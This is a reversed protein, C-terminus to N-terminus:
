FAGKHKSTKILNMERTKKPELTEKDFRPRFDNYLFGFNNNGSNDNFVNTDIYDTNISIKLSEDMFSNDTIPGQLPFRKKDNPYDGELYTGNPSYRPLVPYYYDPHGDNDDDLWDHESNTNIYSTYNEIIDNVNYYNTVYNTGGPGSFVQGSLSTVIGQGVPETTGFNM